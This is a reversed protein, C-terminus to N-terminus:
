INDNLEIIRLRKFIMVGYFLGILDIFFYVYVCVFNYIGNWFTGLGELNEWEGDVRYIMLLKNYYYGLLM